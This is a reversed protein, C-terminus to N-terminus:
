SMGPSYLKYGSIERRGEMLVTAKARHLPAPHVTFRKLPKEGPGSCVTSFLKANRHANWVTALARTMVWM